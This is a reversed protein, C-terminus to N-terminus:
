KSVTFSWGHEQELPNGVLDKAGTTVVANYSVGKQLSHTPDLTATHTAADYHVSAAVEKTNSGKRFSLKFTTANISSALM